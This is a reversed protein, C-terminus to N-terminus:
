WTLWLIVYCSLFISGKNAPWAVPNALKAMDITLVCTSICSGFRSAPKTLQNLSRNSICQWFLVQLRSGLENYCCTWQMQQLTFCSQLRAAIAIMLVDLYLTCSLWMPMLLCPSFLFDFHVIVHADASLTFFCYFILFCLSLPANFLFHSHFHLFLPKYTYQVSFSFSFLSIFWIWDMAACAPSRQLSPRSVSM